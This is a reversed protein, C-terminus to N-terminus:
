TLSWSPIVKGVYEINCIDYGAFAFLGMSIFVRRLFAHDFPNTLAPISYLDMMYVLSVKRRHHNGCALFRYYTNDIFQGSFASQQCSLWSPVLNRSSSYPFYTSFPASTLAYYFLCSDLLSKVGKLFAPISYLDMLWVLSVKRSYHNGCALFRYYTKDIFQGSFASQQCSLWSPVLNRSSYPFFASFPASTLAYYFLCSDLLSKVGKVHGREDFCRIPRFIDCASILLALLSRVSATSFHRVLSKDPSSIL